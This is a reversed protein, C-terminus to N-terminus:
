GALLHLPRQQFSSANPLLHNHLVENYNNNTKHRNKASNNQLVTVLKSRYQENTFDVPFFTLTRYVILFCGSAALSKRFEFERPFKRKRVVSKQPVSRSSSCYIYIYPVAQVTHELRSVLRLMKM